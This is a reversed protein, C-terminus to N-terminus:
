RKVIMIDINSFYNTRTDTVMRLASVGQGITMFNQMRLRSMMHFIEVSFFKPFDFFFFNQRFIKKLFIKRIKGIKRLNKKDSM